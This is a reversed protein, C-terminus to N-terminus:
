TEDALARMAESIVPDHIVPMREVLERATVPPCSIGELPGPGEYGWRHEGLPKGCTKCKLAQLDALLKVQGELVNLASRMWGEVRAKDPDASRPIRDEIIRIADGPTITM